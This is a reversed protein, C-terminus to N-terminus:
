ARSLVFDVYDPYTRELCEQLTEGYFGAHQEMQTLDDLTFDVHCESLDMRICETIVDLIDKGSDLNRCAIGEIAARDSPNIVIPRFPLDQASNLRDKLVVNLTTKLREAEASLKTHLAEPIDFSVKM